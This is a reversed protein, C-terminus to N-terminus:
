LPFFLGCLTLAWVTRCGEEWYVLVTEGGGQENGYTATGEEEVWVAVCRGGEMCLM